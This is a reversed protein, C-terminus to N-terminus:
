KRLIGALMGPGIEIVAGILRAPMEDKQDQDDAM